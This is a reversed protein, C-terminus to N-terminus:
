QQFVLFNNNWDQANVTPDEEGDWTWGQSIWLKGRVVDGSARKLGKSPADVDLTEWEGTEPDFSRTINTPNQPFPSCCEPCVSGTEEGGYVILKNNLVGYSRVNSIYPTNPADLQIWEQSTINFFWADNLTVYHFYPVYSAYEGGVVVFGDTCGIKMNSMIFGDRVHPLVSNPIIKTWTQSPINFAYLDNSAAFTYSNVGSFVYINDGILVSGHYARIGPGGPANITTWIDNKVDYEAFHAYLAISSFDAAYNAGGVCYIKKNNEDAVATAFAKAVPGLGPPSYPAIQKWKKNTTKFVWNESYFDNHAGYCTDNENKQGFYEYFGNFSYIDDDIAATAHGGIYRAGNNKPRVISWRPDHTASGIQFASIALLLIVTIKM